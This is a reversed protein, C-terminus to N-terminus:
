GRWWRWWCCCCDSETRGTDAARLTRLLRPLRAPRGVEARVVFDRRRPADYSWSESSTLVIDSILSTDSNVSPVDNACPREAARSRDWRFAARLLRTLPPNFPSKMTPSLRITLRVVSDLVEKSRPAVVEDMPPFLYSVTSCHCCPSLRTSAPPSHDSPQVFTSVSPHSAARACSSFLPGQHRPPPAPRHAFPTPHTHEAKAM